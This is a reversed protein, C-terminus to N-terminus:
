HSINKPISFLKGFFYNTRKFDGKEKEKTDIEVLVFTYM